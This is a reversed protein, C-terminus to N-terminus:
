NAPKDNDDDVVGTVTIPYCKCKGLNCCAYYGVACDVSCSGELDVGYCWRRNRCFM